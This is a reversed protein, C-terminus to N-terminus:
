TEETFYRLVYDRAPAGDRALRDRVAALDYAALRREVTYGTERADLLTWMARKEAGPPNSVCGLNIARVGDIEMELPQHTHGVIVLDADVGALLARHEAESQSANIGAGNDTGPAAHVLLVRTGDPLTLRQELPLGTVWDFLGAGKLGERTWESDALVQRWISAEDESATAIFQATIERVVESDTAVRRDGNGHVAVLNDLGV